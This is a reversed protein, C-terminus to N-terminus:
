RTSCGAASGSPPELGLRIAREVDSALIPDEDVVALVRDQLVTKGSPAPPPKVTVKVPPPSAPRKQPAKQAAAPSGLLAFVLLAPALVPRLSRADTKMPDM